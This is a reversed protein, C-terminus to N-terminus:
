LKFNSFATSKLGLPWESIAASACAQVLEILLCLTEPRTEFYVHFLLCFMSCFSGEFHKGTFPTLGGQPGGMYFM